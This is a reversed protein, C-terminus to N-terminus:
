RVLGAGTGEAIAVPSAPPVRALRDWSFDRLLRCSSPRWSVPPTLSPGPLAMGPRAPASTPRDGVSPFSPAPNRRRSQRLQRMPSVPMRCCGSFLRRLRVHLSTALVFACHHYAPPSATSGAMSLRLAAGSPMGYLHHVCRIAARFTAIARSPSCRFAVLPRAISFSAARYGRVPRRRHAELTRKSRPRRRPRRCADQADACRPHLRPEGTRSGPRRHAPGIPIPREAVLGLTFFTARVGHDAVACSWTPNRRGPSAADWDARDRHAGWPQFQFLRVDVSMGNLLAAIRGRGM